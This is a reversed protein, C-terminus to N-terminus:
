AVGFKKKVFDADDGLACRYFFVPTRIGEMLNSMITCDSFERLLKPRICHHIPVSSDTSSIPSPQSTYFRDLDHIPRHEEISRKFILIWFGIWPRVETRGIDQNVSVFMLEYIAVNVCEFVLVWQHYMCYHSTVDLCFNYTISGIPIVPINCKAPEGQSFPGLYSDDCTSDSLLTEWLILYSTMLMSVICRVACRWHVFMRTAIVM